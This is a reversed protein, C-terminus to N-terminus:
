SLGKLLGGLMGLVQNVGEKSEVPIKLYRQGTQKDEEVLEEVLAKASEPESLTKALQQFFSVGQSLLEKPATPTTENQPSTSTKPDTSKDPAEEQWSKDTSEETEKNETEETRAAEQEGERIPEDSTHEGDTTETMGELSEMFEKFRSDSMFVSDETAELVADALTSKFKLRQIMEHEITGHSVLNVVQVNSKQGIRFVRGIRQELIAPNWPLDLNIIMAAKQLNLGVGGADTSLFIRCDEEERFRDLLPGRKKSPIGGHLYAFDIERKELEQAVIRTMREWQSFVVVKEGVEALREELIYFLEDIKTDHRTEQDLLYTSNCSMRMSNLGVMLKRRDSETLFNHRRWKAVLMAVDTKYSNHIDMQPETMPVFLHQDTRNPLEKLVQAKRRRIMTDALKKSIETLNKFGVIKGSEDKAQHRDLLLFLPGLLYQDLFQVISYLDQIKNELPTGTLAIRYPAVLRKVAGAIKTEWNKIRQAEDLIVLDPAMKNILHLDRAMVNYTIILYNVKSELYITARKTANGEVVLVSSNTFKEIESRWQYKLSTPCVILASGAKKEKRFLECVAIAQITKGLGMEDALLCRGAKFAFLVGKRQYPFLKAKILKDLSNEDKDLEQFREKRRVDERRTLLYELADPYCRFDPDLKRARTLFRNFKLLADEKLVLQDDFYTKASRQIKEQETTGIRLKIKRQEGYEVYVSSYERLPAPAKFHQKMGWTNRLKETLWEIHKCTGLTNTRFDMCTCFNEKKTLSRLAVRYNRKTEPNTVTFDSYLPHDGNNHYEFVQEKGYQKRLAKQWETLTMASPQSHYSVRRAKKEKKKQKKEKKAAAKKAM